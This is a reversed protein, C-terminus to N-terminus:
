PIQQQTVPRAKRPLRSTLGKWAYIFPYIQGGVFSTPMDEVGTETECLGPDYHTKFLIDWLPFMDALNKGFAEPRVSHHWRHYNPSAIIKRFPGYTWPLQCHVLKGNWFRLVGAAAVVEVPMFLWGAAFIYFIKMLVLEFLHIRYSTTWTLHEDSHHLAHFGWFFKTHLLRHVGYNVLDLILLILIFSLVIPMATWAEPSIHPLGLTEFLYNSGAAIGSFFAIYLVTNFVLLLLNHAAGEFAAAKIKIAKFGKLLFYFGAFVLATQAPTSYVEKLFLLTDHLPEM